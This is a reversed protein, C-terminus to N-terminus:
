MTEIYAYACAIVGVVFGISFGSAAVIALEKYLTKM